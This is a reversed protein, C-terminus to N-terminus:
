IQSILGINWIIIAIFNLIFVTAFQSKKINKRIYIIIIFVLITCLILLIGFTTNAM